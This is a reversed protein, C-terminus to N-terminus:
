RRHARRYAAPTAGVMRHFTRTFHAQSAFGADLALIALPTATAALSVRASEIRLRRQYAAPTVGLHRRFGRVLHVPHIGTQASLEALRLPEHISAHLLDRVAFV